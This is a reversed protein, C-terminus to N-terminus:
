QTCSSISLSRTSWILRITKGTIRPVPLFTKSSFGPPLELVVELALQLHWAALSQPTPRGGMEAGIGSPPM